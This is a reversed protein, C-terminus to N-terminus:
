KFWSLDCAKDFSWHSCLIIPGLFLPRHSSLLMSISISIAYSIWVIFFSPSHSTLFMTTIHVYFHCQLDLRYFTVHDTRPNTLGFVPISLPRFIILFTICNCVDYM